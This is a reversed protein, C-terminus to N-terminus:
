KRKTTKISLLLTKPVLKNGQRFMGVKILSSQNTAVMNFIYSSDQKYHEDRGGEHYLNIKENYLKKTRVVM